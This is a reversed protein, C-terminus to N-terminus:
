SLLSLIQSSVKSFQWTADDFRLSVDTADRDAERSFAGLLPNSMGAVVYTRLIGISIFLQCLDLTRHILM